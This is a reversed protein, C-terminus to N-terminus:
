NSNSTAFFFVKNLSFYCCAYVILMLYQPAEKSTYDLLITDKSPIEQNGPIRITNKGPSLFAFGYASGSNNNVLANFIAQKGPLMIKKEEKRLLVLQHLFLM